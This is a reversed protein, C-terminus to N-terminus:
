WTGSEMHWTRVGSFVGRPGPVREGVWDVLRGTEWEVLGKGMYWTQICFFARFVLVPVHCRASMPLRISPLDGLAPNPPYIAARLKKAGEARGM